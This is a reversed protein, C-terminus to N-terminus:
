GAATTACRRRPVRSMLLSAAARIACAGFVLAVPIGVVTLAHFAFLASVRAGNAVPLALTVVYYSTLPLAVRRFARRTATWAARTM